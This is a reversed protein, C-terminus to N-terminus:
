WSRGITVGVGGAARSLQATSVYSWTRGAEVAIEVPWRTGPRVLAVRASAAFVKAFFVLDQEPYKEPLQVSLRALTLPSVEGSLALHWGSGIAPATRFAALLEHVKSDTMEPSTVDTASSLLGNRTVTKHGVGFDFRDWRLRYGLSIHVSGARGVEALQSVLMAQARATGTTGSVLVVDGPNFFTDYDDARVLRSPALGGSTEFRVGGATYRATAVIWLNDADYTQEFFHPVLFSTDASSPNDFHYRIRDRRAEAGVLVTPPELTQASALAPLLLAGLLM